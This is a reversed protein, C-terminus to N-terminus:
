GVAVVTKGLRRNNRTMAQTISEVTVSGGSEYEKAAIEAAYDIIQRLLMNSEANAQYVGQAMADVMQTTNAVATKRGINGILEPGAEQAIFMQGADVIGGAARTEMKLTYTGGGFKTMDLYTELSTGKWGTKLGSSINEGIQKGFSYGGSTSSDLMGLVGLRYDKAVQKGNPNSTSGLINDKIFGALKQGGSTVSDLLGLFGTRYTEATGNGDGSAIINSSIKKGFTEGGAFLVAIYDLASSFNSGLTKGTNTPDAGDNVNKRITKGFNSGGDGDYKKLSKDFGTKYSDGSTGGNTKPLIAKRVKEMFTSGADGTYSDRLRAFFNTRFSSATGAGNASTKVNESVAEGFLRGKTGIKEKLKDFFSTRFSSSTGAGNASTKVNESVSKGFKTGASKVSTLGSEYESASEKGTKNFTEKFKAKEILDGLWSTLPNSKLKEALLDILKNWATKFGGTLSDWMGSLKDKVGSVFDGVEKKKTEYWEKVASWASSFGSSIGSWMGSAKEGIWSAFKGFETKVNKWSESLGSTIDSWTDTFNINESIWDLGDKIAKYLDPGFWLVVAGVINGTLLSGIALLKTYVNAWGPVGKEDTSVLDTWLAEFIAGGAGRVIDPAISKIFNGLAKFTEKFSAILDALDLGTFFGSVDESLAGKDIGNLVQTVLGLVKKVTDHITKGIKEGDIADLGGNIFETIKDGLAEFDTLNVDTDITNVATMIADGVLHGLGKGDFDRVFGNFADTINTLWKTIKGGVNEWKIKEDAIKILNNIKAALTQGVETWKGNEVMEKIKAAFDSIQPDVTAYEFMSSYDSATLGSKGKGSGNDGDLPNIEDIGLITRKLEKASGTADDLADGYKTPYKIAKIWKGTVGLASLFQNVVNVLGVFKDVVFEVAPALANILPAVAAGVSNKLYLMETSISDLSKALLGGTVQSFYYANELGTSFGEGIEKLATRLLRYTAIRKLSSFLQGVKGAARGAYDALAKFPAIIISAKLKQFALFAKGLATVVKVGVAIAVAQWGGASAGAIEGAEGAADGAKGAEGSMKAFAEGARTASDAAATTGSGGDGGIKMESFVSKLSSFGGLLSSANGTKLGNFIGSIGSQVKGTAKTIDALSMSFKKGSGAAKNQTQTLKETAKEAGSVAGEAKKVATETQEASKKMNEVPKEKGSMGTMAKKVNKLSATLKDLASAAGNASAEIRIELTDLEVAM